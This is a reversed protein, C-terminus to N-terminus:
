KELEATVTPSSAVWGLGKADLFGRIKATPSAFTEGPMPVDFSYSKEAVPFSVKVTRYGEVVALLKGDSVRFIGGGSAGYGIPADTKFGQVAGNEDRELQSVIGSSVSLGKGYPAGIAIVDEGLELDDDAVLTAPTADLGPVELVALDLDPVSGQAIVKAPYRAIGKRGDVLVEFVADGAPAAAVHANTIVYGKRAEGEGRVALVVGSATRLVKGRATVSIRVNAPLAERIADSRTRPEPKGEAAKAEQREGSAGALAVVAAGLLIALLVPSLRKM